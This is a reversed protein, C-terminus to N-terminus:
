FPASVCSRDESSSTAEQSNFFPSAILSTTESGSYSGKSGSKDDVDSEDDTGPYSSKSGSEDDVDSEDPTAFGLEEVYDDLLTTWNYGTKLRLATDLTRDAGDVELDLAMQIVAGCSKLYAPNKTISVFWDGLIDPHNEAFAHLITPYEVTGSIYHRDLPENDPSDNAIWNYLAAMLIRDNKLRTADFIRHDRMEACSPGTILNSDQQEFPLSLAVTIGKHYHGFVEKAAWVKYEWEAFIEPFHAIYAHIINHFKEEGLVFPMLLTNARAYNFLCDEEASINKRAVPKFIGKTAYDVNIILNGPKAEAVLKSMSASDSEVCLDDIFFM